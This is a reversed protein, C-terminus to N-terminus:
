NASVATRDSTFKLPKITTTHKAWYYTANLQLVSMWNYQESPHTCMNLTIPLHGVCVTRCKNKKLLDTVVCLHRSQM